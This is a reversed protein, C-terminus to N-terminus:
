FVQIIESFIGNGTMVCEEEKKELSIIRLRDSGCVFFSVLKTDM